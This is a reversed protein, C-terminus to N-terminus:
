GKSPAVLPTSCKWDALLARLAVLLPIPQDFMLHHHGGPIEIVPLPAPALGSMYDATSRPVVVSLEGRILAMRCRASAFYDRLSSRSAREFVLPDFKWGFGGEEPKVSRTAVYHLLFPYPTPQEPLPRFRQVATALDPHPKMNLFMWGSPREPSPQAIREASPPIIPADVLIAGALREGHLSAMVTAVLGGMSHGILVPPTAFRADEIVALVDEAWSERPYRERRASDGHGSLDIAVVDHTDILLPGLFGWWFAHAGGGHILVVAPKARDGEGWRVYHVRYGGADVVHDTYPAAIASEFWSPVEEAAVSTVPV